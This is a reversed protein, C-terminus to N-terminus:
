IQSFVRCVLFLNSLLVGRSRCTSVLESPLSGNLGVGLSLETLHTLLGIQSSVSGRLSTASRLTLTKVHGDPCYYLAEDWISPCPETSSFRPCESTSCGSADLVAILAAHESASIAKQVGPCKHSLTSPSSCQGTVCTHRVDCFGLVSLNSPVFTGSVANGVLDLFQLPVNSLEAPLTGTIAQYRLSLIKLGSLLGIASSITGRAVSSSAGGPEVRIGTVSGNICFVYGYPGCSENRKFPVCDQM